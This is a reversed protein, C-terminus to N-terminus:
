ERTMIGASAIYDSGNFVDNILGLIIASVHTAFDRNIQPDKYEQFRTYRRTTRQFDVSTESPCTAEM